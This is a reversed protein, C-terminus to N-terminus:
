QPTIVNGSVFRPSPLMQRLHRYLPIDALIEAPKHSKNQLTTTDLIIYLQDHKNKTVSSYIYM